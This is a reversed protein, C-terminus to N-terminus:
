RPKIKWTEEGRWPNASDKCNSVDPERWAALVGLSPDEKAGKRSPTLQQALLAFTIPNYCIGQRIDFGTKGQEV